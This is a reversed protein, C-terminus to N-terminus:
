RLHAARLGARDGAAALRSDFTALSAGTELAEEVDARPFIWALTASADLVITVSARRRDM